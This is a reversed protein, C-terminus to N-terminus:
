TRRNSRASLSKQCCMGASGSRRDGPAVSRSPPDAHVLATQVVRDRMTPVNAAYQVEQLLSQHYRVFFNLPASHSKIRAGV